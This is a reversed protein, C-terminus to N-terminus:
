QAGAAGRGFLATLYYSVSSQESPGFSDPPRSRWLDPCCHRMWEFEIHSIVAARHAEGPGELIEAILYNPEHKLIRLEVSFDQVGYAYLANFFQLGIIGRGTKRATVETMLIPSFYPVSREALYGPLMQWAYWRGAELHLGTM